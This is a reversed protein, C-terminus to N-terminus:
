NQIRKRIYFAVILAILSGFTLRIPFAFFSTSAFHKKSDEGFNVEASVTYKGIFFGKLFVAGNTKNNFQASDSAVIDRSSKALVNTPTLAFGAREGFNGRLTVSGQATVLNDGENQITLLVPIVDTSEVINLKQALLSFTYRPLLDFKKIRTNITMKGSESVTLLINSGITAKASPSTSSVEGGPSKSESLFSFYFDGDPTIEPITIKLLLQQSQNTQLFFPENLAIGANELNFTIPGSNSKGIVIEGSKASPLFPVVHTSIEVPDGYNTLQYTILLDKGPKVVMSVLPPSISLKIEQAFVFTSHLMYFTFCLIFLTSRIIYHTTNKKTRFKINKM